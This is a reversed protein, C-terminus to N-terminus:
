KRLGGGFVYGISFGVTNYYKSAIRADLTLRLHRFLEVGARPTVCFTGGEDAMSEGWGSIDRDGAGLGLGVFPSVKHGRLFNYDAVAQLSNLCFGQDDGSVSRSANNFNLEAGIDIPLRRLNWRAELGIGGGLNNTTGALSSLPYTFEFKVEMEFTKVPLDESAKATTPLLLSLLLLLVSAKVTKTAM